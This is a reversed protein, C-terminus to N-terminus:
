KSPVDFDSSPFNMDPNAEMLQLSGSGTLKQKKTEGHFTSKMKVLGGWQLITGNIAMGPLDSNISKLINILKLYGPVQKSMWYDEAANEGKHQLHTCSFSDIVEKGVVTVQMDGGTKGGTILIKSKHTLYNYYVCQDPKSFKYFIAVHSTVSSGREYVVEYKVGVLSDIEIHIGTSMNVPGSTTGGTYVLLVGNGKKMGIKTHKPQKPVGQGASYLAISLLLLLIKFQKMYSIKIQIMAGILVPM